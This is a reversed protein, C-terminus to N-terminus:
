FGISRFNILVCVCVCMMKVAMELLIWTLWSGRLKGQVVYLLMNLLLVNLLQWQQDTLLSIQTILSKCKSSGGTANNLPVDDGSAGYWIAYSWVNSCKTGASAVILGCTNVLIVIHFFYDEHRFDFSVSTIWDMSFSINSAISSFSNVWKNIIVLCFALFFLLLSSRLFCHFIWHLSHIADSFLCISVAWIVFHVKQLCHM